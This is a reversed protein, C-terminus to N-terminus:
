NKKPREHTLLLTRVCVQKRREYEKLKMLFKQMEGASTFDFRKRLVAIGNGNPLISALAWGRVYLPQVYREIDRTTVTPPAGQPVRPLSPLPSISPLKETSPSPDDEIPKTATSSLRTSIQQLSSVAKPLCIASSAQLPPRSRRVTHLAIRFAPQM